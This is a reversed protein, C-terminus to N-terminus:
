PLLKLFATIISIVILGLGCFFILREKKNKKKWVWLAWVILGLGYLFLLTSLTIRMSYDEFM